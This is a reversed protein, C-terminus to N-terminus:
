RDADLHEKLYRRTHIGLRLQTTNKPDSAMVIGRTFSIHDRQLKALTQLPAGTNYAFELLARDRLFLLRNGGAMIEPAHLIEELTAHDLSRPPRYQTSQLLIAKASLPREQKPLWRVFNRLAILYYNQTAPSINRKKLQTAFSRVSADTIDEVRKAGTAQAFRNLYARYHDCTLAARHKVTALHRLYADVASPLDRIAMPIHYHVARERGLEATFWASNELGKM